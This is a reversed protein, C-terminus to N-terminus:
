SYSNCVVIDHHILPPNASHLYVMERCVDILIVTREEWTLKSTNSGETKTFYSSYFFDGRLLISVDHLRHYLSGGDMFEYWQKLHNM